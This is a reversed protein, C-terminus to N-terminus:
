VTNGFVLDSYECIRLGPIANSRQALGPGVMRSGHRKRGMVNLRQAFTAIRTPKERLNTNKAVTRGGWLHTKQAFGLPCVTPCRRHCDGHPLRTMARVAHADPRRRRGLLGFPDQRVLRTQGLPIADLCQYQVHARRWHRWGLGCLTSGGPHGGMGGGGEQGVCACTRCLRGDSFFM